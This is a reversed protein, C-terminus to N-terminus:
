ELASFVSKYSTYHSIMLLPMAVILGLGWPLMAFFFLALMLAAFCLLPLVNSFVAYASWRIAHAAPMANFALLPACFWLITNVCMLFGAALALKWGHGALANRGAQLEEASLTTITIKPLEAVALFLLAVIEAALVLSGVKILARPNVQFAAFLHRVTVLRGSDQDRAALMMGAVFVPQLMTGIVPGLLPVALSLLTVLMWLATLAIWQFPQAAFLGFAAKIWGAGAAVPVDNVTISM